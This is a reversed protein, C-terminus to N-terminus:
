RGKKVRINKRRFNVLRFFLSNRYETGLGNRGGTKSRKCYSFISPSPRPSFTVHMIDPLCLPVHPPHHGIMTVRLGQM